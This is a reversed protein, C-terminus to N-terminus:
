PVETSSRALLVHGSLLVGDTFIASSVASEDFRKRRYIAERLPYCEITLRVDALLHWLSVANWFHPETDNPLVVALDWDSDPGADGRARSGFLVVAVANTNEMLLAVARELRRLEVLSTEVTRRGHLEIGDVHM